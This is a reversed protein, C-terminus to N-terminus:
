EASAGCGNQLLVHALVQPAASAMRTRSHSGVTSAM